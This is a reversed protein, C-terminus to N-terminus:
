EGIKQEAELVLEKLENIKLSYQKKMEEIAEAFDEIEVGYVEKIEKKCENLEEELRKTESESAMKKVNLDGNRKEVIYAFL